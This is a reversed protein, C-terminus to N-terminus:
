LELKLLSEFIYLSLDQKFKVFNLSVEHNSRFIRGFIESGFLVFHVLLLLLLIDTLNYTM